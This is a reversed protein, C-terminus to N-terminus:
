VRNVVFSVITFASAVVVLGVVAYLIANKAKAVEGPDGRATIYKLAALLLVILAVAGLIGFVINFITELAGDNFRVKPVDFQNSVQALFRVMDAGM